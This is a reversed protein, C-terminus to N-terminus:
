ALELKVNQGYFMEATKMLHVTVDSVMIRCAGRKSCADDVGPHAALYDKVGQVLVPAADVLKVRKGMKQQIVRILRTYHNSGLVLADIQRLKLFHLYKKVIMVTEPKQLWGDEILPELLPASKSYIRVGPFERRIAQEHEGAAELLLPALIGVAKPALLSLGPIVGASIIDLVPVPFQKRADDTLCAAASHGAVVLLGVGMDSLISLGQAVYSAVREPSRRGYPARATDGYYIFDRAPMCRQMERLVSLGGVGSDLIGIM